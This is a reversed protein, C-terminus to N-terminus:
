AYVWQVPKPLIKPPRLDVIEKMTIHSCMTEQAKDQHSEILKIEPVQEGSAAMLIFPHRLASLAKVRKSPIFAILKSILDIAADCEQQKAGPIENPNICSNLFSLTINPSAFRSIQPVKSSQVKLDAETPFGLRKRISLLVSNTDTGTVLTKHTIMEFLTAGASWLDNSQSCPLCNMIAEPPMYITTGASILQNAENERKSIGFDIIQIRNNPTVLINGPKIDLHMVNSAHIDSLGKLIQSFLYSIHPMSLYGPYTSRIIGQLDFESYPYVFYLQRPSKTFFVDNLHAYYKSKISGIISIENLYEQTKDNPQSHRYYNKIAVVSKTPLYIAKYVNCYGGVGIKSLIMYDTLDDIERIKRM